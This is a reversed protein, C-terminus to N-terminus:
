RNARAKGIGKHPRRNDRGRYAGATSFGARVTSFELRGKCKTKCLWIFLNISSCISM